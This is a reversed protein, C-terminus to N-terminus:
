PIDGNSTAVSSCSRHRRGPFVHRLGSTGASEAPRWAAPTWPSPSTPKIGAPSLEQAQARRGGWDPRRARFDRWAAGAAESTGTKALSIPARWSRHSPPLPAESSGGRGLTSEGRSSVLRSPGSPPMSASASPWFEIRSESDSSSPPARRMECPRRPIPRACERPM